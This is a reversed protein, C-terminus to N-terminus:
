LTKTINIFTQEITTQFSFFFSSDTVMDVIKICENRELKTKNTKMINEMDCNKKM